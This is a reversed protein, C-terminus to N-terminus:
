VPNQASLVVFQGAFVMCRVGRKQLFGEFFLAFGGFGGQVNKERM